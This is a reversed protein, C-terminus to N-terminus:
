SQRYTWPRTGLRRTKASCDKWHPRLRQSGLEPINSCDMLFARLAQSFVRPLTGRTIQSEWSFPWSWPFPSALIDESVHTRRLLPIGAGVRHMGM